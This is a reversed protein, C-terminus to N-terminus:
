SAAAPKKRRRPRRWRLPGCRTVKAYPRREEFFARQKGEALVMVANGWAKGGHRRVELRVYSEQGCGCTFPGYVLSKSIAYWRDVRGVGGCVPCVGRRFARGGLMQATSAFPGKWPEKRKPLVFKRGESVSRVSEELVQASLPQCVVWTYVADYLANHPDFIDPVQCYELVRELSPSASTGVVQAFARQLDIYTKPLPYKLHWYRVNRELVMLDNGGWSAFTRDEGCWAWFQEMATPFDLTSSQALALDPLVAAGPSLRKHVQPRIFLNFTDLIPSGPGAVKVAGIQIIEDLRIPDYLGSNWEMDLIIVWYVESM